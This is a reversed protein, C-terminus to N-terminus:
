PLSRMLFAFFGPAATYLDRTRVHGQLVWFGGVIEYEVPKDGKCFTGDPRLVFKPTLQCRGSSTEALMTGKLPGNLVELV